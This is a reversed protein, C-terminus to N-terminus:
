RLRLDEVVLDRHGLQIRLFRLDGVPETTVPLDWSGQGAKMLFPKLDDPVPGRSRLVTLKLVGDGWAWEGSLSWQKPDPDGSFFNVLSFQSAASGPNPGELVLVRADGRRDSLDQWHGLFTLESIPESARFQRHFVMAFDLKPYRSKFKQVTEATVRGDLAELRELTQRTLLRNHTPHVLPGGPDDEFVTELVSHLTNEEETLAPLPESQLFGMPASPLPTSPALGCGAGGLVLLVGLARRAKQVM